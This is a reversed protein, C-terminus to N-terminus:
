LYVYLQVHTYIHLATGTQCDSVALYFLNQASQAPGTASGAGVM